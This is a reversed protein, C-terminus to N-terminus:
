AARFQKTGPAISPPPIDRKRRLARRGRELWWGGAESRQPVRRGPRTSWARHGGPRPRPRFFVARILWWNLRPPASARPGAGPGAGPRAPAPGPPFWFFRNEWSSASGRACARVKSVVRSRPWPRASVAGDLGDVRGPSGTKWV